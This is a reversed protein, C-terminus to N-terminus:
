TPIREIETTSRNGQVTNTTARALSTGIGGIGFQEKPESTLFHRKDAATESQASTGVQKWSM